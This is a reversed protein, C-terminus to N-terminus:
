PAFPRVAVSAADLARRIARANAAANPHDSHVCITAVAPRVPEGSASPVPEGLALAVARDAVQAPDAVIARPQGRPQLRGAATYGREPFGEAVFRLGARECAAGAQSEPLGVVALSADFACVAAAVAAAVMAEDAMTNYLAGHPKVYTLATGAAAAVGALASLQEDVLAAIRAPGLEVRARGFGERDRYSVHAGVAVGQAAAQEASRRMTDLDGAHFGCAISASSILGFLAEDPRRPDHLGFEGIDCNVDIEAM